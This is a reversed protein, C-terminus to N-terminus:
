CELRASVPKHNPICFEQSFMQGWESYLGSNVESEELHRELHFIHQVRQKLIFISQCIVKLHVLFPLINSVHGYM